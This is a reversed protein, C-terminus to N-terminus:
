VAIEKVLPVGGIVIEAGENYKVRLRNGITMRLQGVNLGLYRELWLGNDKAVEKLREVSTRLQSGVRVRVYEELEEAIRDGCHGGNAKYTVKYKNKVISGKIIKSVARGAADEDYGPIPGSIADLAASVTETRARPSPAPTPVPVLARGRAPRLDVEQDYPLKRLRDEELRELAKKITTDKNCNFAIIKKGVWAEVRDGM